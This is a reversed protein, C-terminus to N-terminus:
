KVDKNSHKLYYCKNEEKKEFPEHELQPFDKM